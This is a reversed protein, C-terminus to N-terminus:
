SKQSFKKERIKKCLAQIREKPTPIMYRVNWVIFYVRFGLIVALNCVAVVSVFLENQVALTLVTSVIFLPIHVFFSLMYVYMWKPMMENKLHLIKRVRRHPITYGDPYYKPHFGPLQRNIRKAGIVIHLIGLVAIGAYVELATIVFEDM